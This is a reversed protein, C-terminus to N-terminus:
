CVPLSMFMTSLMENSSCLALIFHFRYYVWFKNGLYEVTGPLLLRFFLNRSWFGFLKSEFATRIVFFTLSILIFVNSLRSYDNQATSIGLTVCVSHTLINIYNIFCMAQLKVKSKTSENHKLGLCVNWTAVSKLAEGPCARVHPLACRGIRMVCLTGCM